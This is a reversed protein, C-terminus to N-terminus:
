KKNKVVAKKNAEGRDFREELKAIEETSFEGEKVIHASIFILLDIKQTDTTERRFFLGLIPIKSIFPIGIIEKSKVDKFLGGIVITEGDQM